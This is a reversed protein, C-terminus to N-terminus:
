CPGVLGHVGTPLFGDRRVHRRRPGDSAGTRRADPRLTAGERVGSRLGSCSRVAAVTRSAPGRNGGVPGPEAAVAIFELSIDWRRCGDSGGRLGGRRGNSGRDDTDGSRSLGPPQRGNGLDRNIGCDGRSDRNSCGNHGWRRGGILRCLRRRCLCRLQSDAGPDAVCKRRDEAGPRRRHRLGRQRPRQHAPGPALRRCRDGVGYGGGRLRGGLWQGCVGFM